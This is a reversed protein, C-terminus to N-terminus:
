SQKDFYLDEDLQVRLNLGDFKIFNELKIFNLNFKLKLLILLIYNILWVM